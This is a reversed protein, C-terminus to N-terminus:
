GPEPTAADPRPQEGRMVEYAHVIAKRWTAREGGTMTETNISTTRLTALRTAIGRAHVESVFGPQSVAHLAQLVKTDDGPQLNGHELALLLGEKLLGLKIGDPRAM